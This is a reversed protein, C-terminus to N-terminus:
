EASYAYQFNPRRFALAINDAQDPKKAKMARHYAASVLRYSGRGGSYPTGYSTTFGKSNLLECLSPVSMFTGRKKLEDAVWGVFAFQDMNRPSHDTAKLFDMVEQGEAQGALFKPFVQALGHRLFLKCLKECFKGGGKIFRANNPHPCHFIDIDLSHIRYHTVGEEQSIREYDLGAFYSQPNLDKWLIVAVHPNMTQVIHGFRNFRAGVRRVKEWYDYPIKMGRKATSIHLEIANGNGWAFSDLIESLKDQKMMGWNEHGHLAALLMMGFGWFTHRTNGWKRFEHRQFEELRFLLKAGEASKPDKLFERLDGWGATDQGILILRVASKEYSKGFVPLFPEPMHKIDPHTLENAESVFERLLPTYHSLLRDKLSSSM